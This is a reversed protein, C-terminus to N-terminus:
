AVRMLTFLVRGNGISLTDIISLSSSAKIFLNTWEHMTRFPRGFAAMLHLNLSNAKLPLASEKAKDLFDDILLISKNPTMANFIHM